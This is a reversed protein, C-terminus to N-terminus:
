TGFATTAPGNVYWTNGIKVMPYSVTTPVGSSPPLRTGKPKVVGILHSVNVYCSTATRPANVAILSSIVDVWYGEQYTVVQRWFEEESPPLNTPDLTAKLTALYSPSVYPTATKLWYYPNPWTFEMSDAARVYQAAVWEPTGPKNINDPTDYVPHV